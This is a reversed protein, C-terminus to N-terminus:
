GAATRIQEIAEDRTAVNKPNKIRAMRSAVVNFNRPKGDATEIRLQTRRDTVPEVKRVESLPVIWSPTGKTILFTDGIVLPVRLPKFLLHRETLVLNGGEKALDFRKFPISAVWSGEVREGVEDASRGKSPRLFGM